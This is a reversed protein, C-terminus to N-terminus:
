IEMIAEKLLALSAIGITIWTMMSGKKEKKENSLALFRDDIDKKLSTLNKDDDSTNKGISTQINAIEIGTSTEFNQLKVLAAEVGDINHKLTAIDTETRKRRDENYEHRLDSESDHKSLNGKLQTLDNSNNEVRDLFKIVTKKFEKFQDFM